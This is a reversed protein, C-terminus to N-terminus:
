NRANLQIINLLKKRIWYNRLKLLLLLAQKFRLLNESIPLNLTRPYLFKILTSGVEKPTGASHFIRKTQVQTRLDKLKSKSNNVIKTLHAWSLSYTVNRGELPGKSAAQSKDKTQKRIMWKRLRIIKMVRLTYKYIKRVLNGRFIM